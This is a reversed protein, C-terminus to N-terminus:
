SFRFNTVWGQWNQIIHVVSEEPAQDLRTCQSYIHDFIPSIFASELFLLVESTDTEPVLKSCDQLLKTAVTKDIWRM